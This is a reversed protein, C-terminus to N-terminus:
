GLASLELEIETPDYDIVVIGFSGLLNMFAELDVGAIRTAVGISVSRARYLQVALATPVGHQLLLDDMPVTVCLPRGHKTM